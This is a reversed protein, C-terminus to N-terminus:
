APPNLLAETVDAMAVVYTRVVSQRTRPMKTRLLQGPRIPFTRETGFINRQVAKFNVNAELSNHAIRNRVKECDILIHEKTAMVEALPWGNELYLQATERTQSPKAWSLFRQGAKAISRVRAEDTVSLYRVAERGNLSVGGCAYHLFFVELDAEYTTFAELFIAEAIRNSTHDSDTEADSAFPLGAIQDLTQDRKVLFAAHLAAFDEPSM